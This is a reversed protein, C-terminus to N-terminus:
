QGSGWRWFGRGTWLASPVAPQWFCHGMRYIGMATSSSLFDAAPTSLLIMGTHAGCLKNDALIAGQFVQSIGVENLSFFVHCGVAGIISPGVRWVVKRWAASEALLEEFENQCINLVLGWCKANLRRSRNKTAISPVQRGWVILLGCVMVMMVVGKLMRMTHIYIYVHTHIHTHTHQYMHAKWQVLSLKLSHVASLWPNAVMLIRLFSLLLM